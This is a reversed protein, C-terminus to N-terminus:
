NALTCYEKMFKRSRLMKQSNGNPTHAFTYTYPHYPIFSGRPGLQTLEYRLHDDILRVFVEPRKTKIIGWLGCMIHMILTIIM